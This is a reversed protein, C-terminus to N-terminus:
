QCCLYMIIVYMRILIKFIIGIQAAAADIDPSGDCLVTVLISELRQDLDRLLIVNLNITLNMVYSGQVPVIFIIIIQSPISFSYSRHKNIHICLKCNYLSYCIM